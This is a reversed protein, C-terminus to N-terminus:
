AAASELGVLRKCINVAEPANDGYGEAGIEEAFARSVPAGGVIVPVDLGQAKIEEIILRMFPMTTTLLASLGIVDAQVEGATKVIDEAKTNVGLDVVKFGSGELMMGVLNKGIDHLDGFVTAMIVTGKPKANTKALVPRLVAVGAKMAKAAMLMEPVFMEGAAFLDGVEGMPPILGEDLIDVAMEGEDLAQQVLKPCKKDDFVMVTDYIEQYIPKREAAEADLKTRDIGGAYIGMFGKGGEVEAAIGDPGSFIQGEYPREGARFEKIASLAAKVHETPTQASLSCLYLYFKKGYPGSSGVEMYEHIRKRIEESPGTTLLHNGVGFSLACGRRDAYERIPKTGVRFCDPDQVKLYQPTVELKIDWYKEKDAAFSDGWWNDCRIGDGGGCLERLKLLYPVSFEAVIDETVFPLSGVADKGNAVTAGPLVKFYANIYPALVEEVLFDLLKHVFKPNEAMAMILREFQMVQAALNLPACYHIYHTYGTLEKCIQLTELVWPMRGSKFPDPAKIRALAKEDEIIVRTNDLAPYLEDFWAMDGGLAEAEVSYVDWVLDPVDFGLERQADLNGRVFLEPDSFFKRGNYGGYKMCFEAMQATVPVFDAEGGDIIAKYQKIGESFDYEYRSM